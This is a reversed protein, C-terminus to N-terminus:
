SASFLSVSIIELKIGECYAAITGDAVSAAKKLLNVREEENVEHIVFTLIAFNFNKNSSDKIEDINSHQFSIKGSPHKLLTKKARAINRESLDIGM